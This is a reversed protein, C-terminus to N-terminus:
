LEANYWTKLLCWRCSTITLGQTSFDIWQQYEWWWSNETQSLAYYFGPFDISYYLPWLLLEIWLLVIWLESFILLVKQTSLILRILDICTFLCYNFASRHLQYLTSQLQWCHLKPENNSLLILLISGKNVSTHGSPQSIRSDFSCELELICELSSASFWKTSSEFILFIYFFVQGDSRHFYHHWKARGWFFHEWM